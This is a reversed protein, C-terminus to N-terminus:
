VIVYGLTFNALCEGRSQGWVRAWGCNEVVTHPCGSGILPRLVVELPWNATTFGTEGGAGGAAAASQLARQVTQRRLPSGSGRRNPWALGSEELVCRGFLALIREM